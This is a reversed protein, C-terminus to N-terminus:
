AQRDVGGTANAGGGGVAADISGCLQGGSSWWELVREMYLPRQGQLLPHAEGACIRLLRYVGHTVDIAHFWNHYPCTKIYGAEAAELFSAMVVPDFSIGHNHPGVFYMAAAHNRAKDLELPNLNVSNLLDLSLGKTGIPRPRGSFCRFLPTALLGAGLPLIAEQSM